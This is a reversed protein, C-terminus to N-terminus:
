LHVCLRLGDHISGLCIVEVFAHRGEYLLSGGREGPGSCVANEAAPPRFLWLGEMPISPSTPVTPNSGVVEDDRVIRAALSRWTGDPVRNYM